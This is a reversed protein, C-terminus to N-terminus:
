LSKIITNYRYFLDGEPGNYVGQYVVKEYYRHIIVMFTTGELDLRDFKPPFHIFIYEHANPNTPEEDVFIDYVRYDKILPSDMLIKKAMLEVKDQKDKDMVPLNAKLYDEKITHWAEKMMGKEYEDGKLYDDKLPQLSSCGVLLLLICWTTIIRKM